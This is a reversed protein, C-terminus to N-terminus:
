VAKITHQLCKIFSQYPLTGRYALTEKCPSESFQVKSHANAYNSANYPIYFLFPVPNSLNIEKM